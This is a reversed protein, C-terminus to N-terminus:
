ESLLSKPWTFKFLSGRGVISEVKIECGYVSLIKRVLALGMGSGEHTDRSKLVQFMEFIKEHYEHAIGPGNDSVTFIYENGADECDVTIVGGSKKDNHSIANNILNSFVQQLPMRPLSLDIFRDNIQIDFGKPISVLQLVDQLLQMGNVRDGEKYPDLIYEIQAYELIDKLLREMRAVRGQLVKVHEQAEHYQKHEISELIWQSINDIARLPAKLDHSSIWAFRSLAMNSNELATIKKQLQANLDANEIAVATVNALAQLIHVEEKTPRRSKSWYNGIAGIPDEKRIPVMAMSKVFTPRYVDSPVRPDVYIDEIVVSEKHSMVWGSICNKMTFRQGNWLPSIANEAAYFCLDGDRLIFTAGDAGTLERAAKRIISSVADIDRAHSLEQVVEVLREMADIYWTKDAHLAVVNAM